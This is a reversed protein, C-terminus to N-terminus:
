GGTPPETVIGGITCMGVTPTSDPDRVIRFHMTFSGVHGDPLPDYFFASGSVTGELVDGDNQAFVVNASAITTGDVDTVPSVYGLLGGGLDGTLTVPFDTTAGVPAGALSVTVQGPVHGLSEDTFVQFGEVSTLDSSLTFTAIDGDMGEFGQGDADVTWSCSCGGVQIVTTDTIDPNEVSTATVTVEGEGTPVFEGTSANMGPGSASWTVDDSVGQASVTFARSQGVELCTPGPDISVRGLRITATATPAVAGDKGLAGTDAIDRATLVDAFGSADAPATYEVLHTGGGYQVIEAFGSRAEVEVLEPHLADTVAVEFQRKTGEEMFAEDPTIHLQIRTVEVTTQDAASITQGGFQLGENRVRVDLKATGPKEPEYDVDSILSIADGVLLVKSWAPDTLDVPGFTEPDIQVFDSGETGNIAAQVASTKVLGVLDEAFSPDVYRKLWGDYTGKTGVAQFAADLIAKDLKWGTSRALVLVDSVSGPGPQDQLFTTPAARFTLQQFASPLLGAVGQQYTTLLWASLSVGAAALKAPPFPITGALGAAFGIDGLVKGSLGDLRFAADFAQRMCFDLLAADDRGINSGGCELVVADIVASPGSTTAPGASPQARIAASTGQLGSPAATIAELEPVLGTKAVIREALDVDAGFPSTGQALAALSNANSPDDLVSRVIVLPWLLTPQETIDTALLADSTTGLREAQLAVLRQLAQVLSHLEGPAAPLAGITFPVAPCASTEDNFRLEVAGGDPDAGPHLPTVMEATGDELVNVVAFGVSGDPATVRASLVGTWDSPLRGIGVADLPQASVDALSLDACPVTQYPDEQADRRVGVFFTSFSSVPATVTNADPDVTSSLASLTGDHLHFIALDAEDSGAPLSTDEYVITLTAPSDFVTGEPGLEYATGPVPVPEDVVATLSAAGAPGEASALPLDAVDVAVVSIPM